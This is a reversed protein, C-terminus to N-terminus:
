GRVIKPPVTDSMLEHYILKNCIKRISTENLFDSIMMDALQLGIHEFYPHTVTASTGVKISPLYIELYIM